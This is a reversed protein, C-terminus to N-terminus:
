SKVRIGSAKQKTKYSMRRGPASTLVTVTVDSIRITRYSNVVCNSGLDYEFVVPWVARRGEGWGNGKALLVRYCSIERIISVMNKLYKNETVRVIKALCFVRMMQSASQYWIAQRKSSFALVRKSIGPGALSCVRSMFHSSDLSPFCPWQCSAWIIPGLRHDFSINLNAPNDLPLHM